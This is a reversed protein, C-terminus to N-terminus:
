NEIIHLQGLKARKMTWCGGSKVHDKSHCHYCGEFRMGTYNDPLKNVTICHVIDSTEAIKINREKYGGNWTRKMPLFEIVYIGLEKGIAAAWLDIGGLHCGGSVVAEIGPMSLLEIIKQIAIERGSTTFKIEESGVIGIISGDMTYGM